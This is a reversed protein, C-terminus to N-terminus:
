TESDKHTPPYIGLHIELAPSDRGEVGSDPNRFCPFPARIGLEHGDYSRPTQKSAQKSKYGLLVETLRGGGLSKVLPPCMKSDSVTDM